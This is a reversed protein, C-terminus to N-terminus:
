YDTGKLGIVKEISVDETSVATKLKIIASDENPADITCVHSYDPHCTYHYYIEYMKRKKRKKYM